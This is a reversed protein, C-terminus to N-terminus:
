DQGVIIWGTVVEHHKILANVLGLASKLPPFVDSSEKAVDLLVKVGDAVRQGTAPFRRVTLHSIECFTKFVGVDAQTRTAGPLEPTRVPDSGFCPNTEPLSHLEPSPLHNDNITRLSGPVVAM